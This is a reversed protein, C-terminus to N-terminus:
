YLPFTCCVEAHESFYGAHSRRFLLEQALLFAVKHRLPQIASVVHRLLSQYRVSLLNILDVRCVCSFGPQVSAM